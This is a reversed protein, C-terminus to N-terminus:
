PNTHTKSSETSYSGDANRYTTQEQHTRGGFWGPKDQESHSVEHSCGTTWAVASLAIWFVIIATIPKM